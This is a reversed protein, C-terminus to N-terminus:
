GSARARKLDKPAPYWSAKPPLLPAAMTAVERMATTPLVFLVIAADHLAAALDADPRGDAAPLVPRQGSTAVNARM